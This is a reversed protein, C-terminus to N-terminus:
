KYLGETAFAVPQQLLILLSKSRRASSSQLFQKAGNADGFWFYNAYM